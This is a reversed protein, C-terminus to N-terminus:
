PIWTGFARSLAPTDMLLSMGIHYAIKEAEGPGLFAFKVREGRTKCSTKNAIGWPKPKGEESAWITKEELQRGLKM